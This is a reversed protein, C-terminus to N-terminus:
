RSTIYVTILWLPAHRTQDLKSGTKEGPLDPSWTLGTCMQATSSLCSSCPLQLAHPPRCWSTGGRPCHPMAIAPATWLILRSPGNLSACVPKFCLVQLQPQCFRFCQAKWFPSPDLCLLSGGLICVVFSISLVSPEYPNPVPGSSLNFPLFVPWVQMVIFLDTGRLWKRM